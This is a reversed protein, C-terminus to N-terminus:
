SLLGVVSCYYKHQVEKEPYRQREFGRRRQYDNANLLDKPFKTGAMTERQNDKYKYGPNFGEDGM